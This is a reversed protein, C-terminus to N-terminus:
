VFSLFEKPATDPLSQANLGDISEADKLKVNEVIACLAGITIVV